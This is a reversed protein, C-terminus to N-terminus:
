LCLVVCVVAKPSLDYLGPGNEKPIQRRFTTAFKLADAQLVAHNKNQLEPLV